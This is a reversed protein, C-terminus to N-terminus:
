ALVPDLGIQEAAGKAASHRVETFSGLCSIGPVIRTWRWAFQVFPSRRTHGLTGHPSGTEHQTSDKKRRFKRHDSRHMAAPHFNRPPKNVAPAAQESPSDVM